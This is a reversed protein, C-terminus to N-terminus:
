VTVRNASIPLSVRVQLGGMPSASARIKGGHATVINKCISLGLGAGGSTRARSPDARYLRDFLKALHEAAVGPPTDDVTVQLMGNLATVTVNVRGPADTYRQANAIINTFLQKLREADASLWLPQASSLNLTLTLGAAQMPPTQAAVVDAVVAALDVQAFRYDLAGSDSLALQYLDEILRTLRRCEQDLSALAEPSPSRIGERLAQIEGQLITVPTRLEHAIDATWQQRATRHNELAAAARNFDEALAGLEDSRGTKIRAGYNGAALAQAGDAVAKVPALLWRAVALAVALAMLLIVLAALLARDTFSRAFAVDVESNLKPLPEYLLYGVTQTGLTVQVTPLDRALASNGAVISREADLLAVRRLLGNPAGGPPPQGRGMPPPPPPRRDERDERHDRDLPEGRPDDKRGSQPPPRHPRSPPPPSLSATGDAEIRGDAIVLERFLRRDERLFSWSGSVAYRRALRQAAAEVQEVQQQNVYDLFGREFLRQQSWTLGVLAALSLLAFAFFLRHWLRIRM